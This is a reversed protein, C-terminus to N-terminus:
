EDFISQTTTTTTPPQGPLKYKTQYGGTLPYRLSRIWEEIMKYNRDDPSRFIPSIRAQEPHRLRALKPPLGYQLLLSMEPNDRKILERGATSWAHLIFFNTYVVRDDSSRMSFFKLRGQGKVGGHCSSSACSRSIVRWVRTKFRLMVSPDTKILIDKRFPSDRDTNELIYRAQDVRPAQRFRRVGESDRFIDTGRMSEIFRDLLKDRFEVRVRDGRQLEHLRIRYVDELTLLKAADIPPAEKTTTTTTTPMPATTTTAPGLRLEVLRLLLKANEDEPKLQLVRELVSRAERLLNNDAAWRALEYLKEPDQKDTAALRRKFENLPRKIEEIRLVEDSSVVVVAGARLRIRYGDKVETVEGVLKRGNRLTVIKEASTPGVLIALALVALLALVHRPTM